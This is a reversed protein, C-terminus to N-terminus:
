NKKLAPVNMITVFIIKENSQNLKAGKTSRDHGPNRGSKDLHATSTLAKVILRDSIM